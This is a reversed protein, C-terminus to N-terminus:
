SRVKIARVFLGVFWSLSYQYMPDINGMDSICFYLISTHHAV